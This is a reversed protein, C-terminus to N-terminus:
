DGSQDYENLTHHVIFLVSQNRGDQSLATIANTNLVRMSEKKSPKQVKTKIYRSKMIASIVHIDEVKM